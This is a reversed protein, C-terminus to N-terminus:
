SRGTGRRVGLFCAPWFAMVEKKVFDEGETAGAEEGAEAAEAAFFSFTAGADDATGNSMGFCFTSTIM